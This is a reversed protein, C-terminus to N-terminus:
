LQHCNCLKISMLIVAAMENLMSMVNTEYDKLPPLTGSIQEFSPMFSAIIYNLLENLKTAVHSSKCLLIATIYSCTM